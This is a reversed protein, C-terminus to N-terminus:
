GVRAELIGGEHDCERVVIGVFGAQALHDRWWDASAPRERRGTMVRILNGGLRVLGAPGRRIMASAFRLLVARNRPSSPSLGFMMDGVVMRGGPRLVRRIEALARGKDAHTLHHLCYNSVVVDFSGGPFPLSTADGTVVDANTLSRDILALTLRDCMASSIDLAWVRRVRPAMALTLLGTGAGIDLVEFSEHLEALDLIEDRLAQFGAGAAVREVAEVQKDWNKRARSTRLLGRRGAHDRTAPARSDEACVTANSGTRM